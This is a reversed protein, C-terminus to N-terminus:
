QLRCGWAKNRFMGKVRITGANFRRLKPSLLSSYNEAVIPVIDVGGQV